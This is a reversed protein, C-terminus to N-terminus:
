LVLSEVQLLVHYTKGFRKYYRAYASMVPLSLFEQRTYGRYRDRVRAEIERKRADLAASRLTNDVSSLELLGIIAGPHAARWEATAAIPLM